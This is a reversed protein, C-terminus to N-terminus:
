NYSVILWKFLVILPLIELTCIYLFLYYSRISYYFFSITFIKILRIVFILIIILFSINLINLSINEQLFSILLTVPLLIVGMLSNLLFIILLYINVIEQYKFIFALIKSTLIKIIYMIFIFSLIKFFSEFSSHPIFNLNYIKSLEFVFISLTIFFNIILIIFYFTNFPNNQKYFSILNKNLLISKFLYSLNKGGLIKAIVILIFSLLFISLEWYSIFINRETGYFLQKTVKKEYSTKLKVKHYYNFITDSLKKEPPAAYIIKHKTFANNKVTEEKLTDPDTTFKFSRYTSDAIQIFM